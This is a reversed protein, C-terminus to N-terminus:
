RATDHLQPAGVSLGAIGPPELDALPAVIRGAQRRLQTAARLRNAVVERQRTEVGVAPAVVAGRSAIRRVRFQAEIETITAPEIEDGVMDVDIRLIREATDGQGYEPIDRQPRHVPDTWLANWGAEITEVWETEDRLTICPTRHFYAEKQLGGSDTLVLESIALLGQLEIYPLPDIVQLGSPLEIQM